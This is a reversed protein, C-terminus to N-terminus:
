LEALRKAKWYTKLWYSNNLNSITVGKSRSAHVFQYKTLYIGVHRQYKGTRFFVLDGTKLENVSIEQGLQSLAATTRPIDLNLKDRYTLHVFGSCDIGSKKMGGYRYPAGRWQQYQTELVALLADEARDSTGGTLAGFGPRQSQMQTQTQAPRQQGACASLLLVSLLLPIYLRYPHTQM